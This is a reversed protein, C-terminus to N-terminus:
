GDIRASHIRCRMWRRRVSRKVLPLAQVQAASGGTRVELGNTFSRLGCSDKPAIGLASCSAHLESASVKSSMLASLRAAQVTESCARWRAVCDRLAVPACVM